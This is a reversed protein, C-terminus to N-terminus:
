PSSNPFDALSDEGKLPVDLPPIGRAYKLGDKVQMLDLNPDVLYRHPRGNLSCKIRSYVRVGKVGSREYGKGMHQAFQLLLDPRTTCKRTQWSPLLDPDVTRRRGNEDVVLLDGRSDKDRLKMHWAWKHGEETWNANGPYFFHRLPMGVQIAMYIFTFGLVAYAGVRARVTQAPWNRKWEVATKSFWHTSFVRRPWDAPFFVTTLATAMVPFIGITFLMENTMHFLVMAGFAWPRTKKSLLLFPLVLDFLMGGYSVIWATAEMGLVPGILPYDTKNALWMRVPEAQLWDSNMKAIGG